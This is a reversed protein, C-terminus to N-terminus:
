EMFRALRFDYNPIITHTLLRTDFPFAVQVDSWSHSEQLIGLQYLFLQILFRNPATQLQVRAVVHFRADPTRGEYTPTPNIQPLDVYASLDPVFEEAPDLDTWRLFGSLQRPKTIPVIPYPPDPPPHCIPPRLRPIPNRNFKSSPM